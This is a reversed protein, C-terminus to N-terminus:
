AAEPPGAKKNFLPQAEAQKKKAQQAKFQSRTMPVGSTPPQEMPLTPKIGQALQEQHEHFGRMYAEYGETGPAYLPEAARNERSAEEGDFYAQAELDHEDAQVFLDLQKGLSFGLWKAVTMDRAILAKIQREGTQTKLKFATDFDRQLFGDSKASKYGNRLNAQARAAQEKFKAIAPLHHDLFLAKSESNVRDGGRRVAIDKQAKPKRVPKSKKKRPM